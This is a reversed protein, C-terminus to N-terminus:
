AFDRVVSQAVLEPLLLPNNQCSWHGVDDCHADFPVMESAVISGVQRITDVQTTRNLADELLRRVNAPTCDGFKAEPILEKSALINIMNVYKVKALSKVALATLWHPKFLVVQPVHLSALETSMTGSSCVAWQLQKLADYKSQRKRDEDEYVSEKVERWVSVDDVSENFGSCAYLARNRGFLERLLPLTSEIEHDRSGPFLGGIDKSHVHSRVGLADECILRQVALSGVFDCPLGISDYFSKEFRHIVFIKDLIDKLRAARQRGNSFAWFSPSVIHYQRISSLSNRIAEHVRFSFGKSDVTLIADVRESGALNVTQKVLAKAAFISPLVEVLGYKNIAAADLFTGSVEKKLLPGGVGHVEWIGLTKKFQIDFCRAV